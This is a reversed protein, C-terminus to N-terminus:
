HKSPVVSPSIALEIRDRIVNSETAISKPSIPGVFYSLEEIIVDAFTLDGSILYSKVYGNRGFRFAISTACMGVTM